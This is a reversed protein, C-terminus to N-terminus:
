AAQHKKKWLVEALEAIKLDLVWPDMSKMVKWTRVLQDEGMPNVKIRMRMAIHAMNMRTLKCPRDIKMVVFTEIAMGTQSMKDLWYTECAQKTRFIPNPGKLEGFNVCIM